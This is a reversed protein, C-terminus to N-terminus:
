PLPKQSKPKKKVKKKKKKKQPPPTLSNKIKVSVATGLTKAATVRAKKKM